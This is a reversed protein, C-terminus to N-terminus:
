WGNSVCFRDSFEMDPEPLCVPSIHPLNPDFERSLFLLAFNYHHNDLNFLPHVTIESVDAEEYAFLEEETQTDWEGCRVLLDTALQGSSRVCHGATLVVGQAILSGGCRYVKLPTAQDGVSEKKLVACM